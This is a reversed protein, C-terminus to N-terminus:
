PKNGKMKMRYTGKLWRLKTKIKTKKSQHLILIIKAKGRTCLTGLCSLIVFHVDFEFNCSAAKM